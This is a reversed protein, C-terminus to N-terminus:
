RLTVAADFSSQLSTWGLTTATNTLWMSSYGNPFMMFQATSGCPGTADNGGSGNHEYYYGLKGTQRNVGFGYSASASSAEMAALGAPSVIKGRMLNSLYRAYESAAMEWSGPGANLIRTDPTPLGVCQSGNAHFNPTQPSPGTSFEDVANLGLPSFLRGRVFNRYSQATVRGNRAADPEFPAFAAPGEVLYAIAVRLLAYNCNSYKYQGIVDNPGSQVMTAVSEYTNDWCSTFGSTHTLFHRFTLNAMAAPMSWPSPLYKRISTDYDIAFGRARLDEIAAVLATATIMKSTSALNIRRDSTMPVGAMASGRSMSSVWNGLNDFTAFQYGVLNAADLRNRVNVLYADLDFTHAPLAIAPVPPPTVRECVTGARTGPASCGGFAAVGVGDLRCGKWTCSNGEADTGAATCVRMPGNAAGCVNGTTTSVSCSSATGDYRLSDDTWYNHLPAAAPSAAAFTSARAPAWGYSTACLTGRDAFAVTGACGVLTHVNGSADTTSGLRQAAAGNACGPIPSVPDQRPQQSNMTVYFECSGGTQTTAAANFAWSLPQSGWGVYIWYYNPACRAEVTNWNNTAYEGTRKVTANASSSCPNDSSYLTWGGGPYVTSCFYSIEPTSLDASSQGLDDAAPDDIACGVLAAASSLFLSLLHTRMGGCM